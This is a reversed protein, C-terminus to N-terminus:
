NGNPRMADFAMKFKANVDHWNDRNTFEIVFWKRGQWENLGGTGMDIGDWPPEEKDILISLFVNEL